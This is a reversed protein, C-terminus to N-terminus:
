APTRSEAAQDTSLQSPALFAVVLVLAGLLACGTWLAWGGPPHWLAGLVLYAPTGTVGVAYRRGNVYLADVHTFATLSVLAVLGRASWRPLKRHNRYITELWVLVVIGMGAQLYRGGMPYGSPHTLVFFVVAMGAFALPLVLCALRELWSGLLLALVAVLVHRPLTNSALLHQTAAQM